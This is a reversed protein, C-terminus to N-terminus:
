TPCVLPHLSTCLQCPMHWHGNPWATEWPRVCFLVEDISVCVRMQWFVWTTANFHLETHWTILQDHQFMTSLMTCETQLCAPINNIILWRFAPRHLAMLTICKTEM